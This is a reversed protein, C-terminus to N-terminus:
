GGDERRRRENRAVLLLPLGLMLVPLLFGVTAGLYSRGYLVVGAVQVVAMIVVVVAYLVPLIRVAMRPDVLSELDRIWRAQRDDDNM